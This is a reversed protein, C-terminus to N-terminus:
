KKLYEVVKNKMDDSIENPKNIATYFVAFYTAQMSTVLIRIIRHLLSIAVIALLIPFIFIHIEGPPNSHTHMVIVPLQSLVKPLLFAAGAGLVFLIAYLIGLFSLTVGGFIDLGFTGALTEPVNSKLIKLKQAADKLPVGEIMVAPLLYSEAVEFLGQLVDIVGAVLFQFIGGGNSGETNKAQALVMEVAAFMRLQWKQSSAIKKCDGITAARKTIKAYALYTQCARRNIHFFYSYPLIFLVLFTLLFYGAVPHFHYIIGSLSFLFLLHCITTFLIRSVLLDKINQEGLLQFSTSMLNAVRQAKDGCALGLLSEYVGKARAAANSMTNTM